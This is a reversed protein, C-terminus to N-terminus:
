LFEPLQIQVERCFKTARSVFDLREVSFDDSIWKELAKSDRLQIPHRSQSAEFQANPTFGTNTVIVGFNFRHRGMAGSLESIFVSEVNRKKSRHHKVQVVGLMPLIGLSWLVIDIGGDKSRAPSIRFGQFGMALFRDLILEEFEDDTLQNVYEPDQLLKPIVETEVNLAKASVYTIASDTVQPEEFVGKANHPIHSFCIALVPKENEGIRGLWFTEGAEMVHQCLSCKLRSSAMGIQISLHM